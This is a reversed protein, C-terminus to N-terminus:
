PHNPQARLYADMLKQGKPRISDEGPGELTVFVSDIEDLVKPDSYKFVWRRQAKDDSYFIGLSRAQKELGEKTGWVRYQGGKEIKAESLDYAYFVLSKGETFFVRGFIPKTKGRSDTDFVDVIHLNRAAMLDRVERGAQLMQRERDLDTTKEKLQDSLDHLQVQDAVFTAQVADSKAQADTTAQRAIILAAEADNLRRQLDQVSQRDYGREGILRRENGAHIELAAEATSAREAAVKVQTQLTSVQLELLAQRELSDRFQQDQSNGGIARGVESPQVAAVVPHPMAKGSGGLRYSVLSAFIIALAAAAVAFFARVGASRPLPFSVLKSEAVTRDVLKSFLIGENEARGLFRRRLLTSDVYKNAEVSDLTTDHERLSYELGAIQSYDAYASRCDACDAMHRELAALQDPSLQGVSAAACMEQFQEHDLV